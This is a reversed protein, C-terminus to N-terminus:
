GKQHHKRATYVNGQATNPGDPDYIANTSRSKTVKHGQQKWEKAKADRAAKAEADSHHTVQGWAKFDTYEYHPIEYGGQYRRDTTYNEKLIAAVSEMTPTHVVQKRGEPTDLEALTVHVMHRKSKPPKVKARIKEEAEYPTQAEVEHRGGKHDFGVYGHENVLAEKLQADRFNKTYNHHIDKYPVRSSMADYGKDSQVIAHTPTTNIIMGHETHDGVRHGQAEKISEDLKGRTGTDWKDKAKDMHKAHRKRRQAEKASTRMFDIFNSGIQKKEEKLHSKADLWHNAFAYLHDRGKDGAGHLKKKFTPNHNYLHVTRDAVHQAFKETEEPGLGRREAVTRGVVHPLISTKDEIHALSHNSAENLQESEEHLVTEYHPVDSHSDYSLHKKLARHVQQGSRSGIDHLHVKGGEHHAINNGGLWNGSLTKGDSTFKKNSASQKNLFAKFVKHSGPGINVENLQESEELKQAALQIGATRKWNKLKFRDSTGHQLSDKDEAAKSIYSKLTLRSLENLQGVEEKAFREKGFALAMNKRGIYRGTKDAKEYEKNAKKQAQNHHPGRVAQRQAEDGREIRADHVKHALGLSIEAIRVPKSPNITYKFAPKKKYWSPKATPTTKPKDYYRLRNYVHSLPEGFTPQNEMTEHIAHPSVSIRRAAAEGHQRALHPKLAFSTNYDKDTPGIVHWKNSATGYTIKHGKSLADKVAGDFSMGTAEDLVQREEKLHEWGPNKHAIYVHGSNSDGEPDHLQNRIMTKRVTHGQAKWEKAKADRAAKAEANSPHTVNGWAHYETSGGHQYESGGPAIESLMEALQKARSTAIAYMVQKAKAGYREKFGQLKSKMSHVIEEKKTDEAPTLTREHLKKLTKALRAEKGLAGGKKAAANIKEAPIKEDQPVGLKRHLAGPRKIAKAIWNRESLVNSEAFQATEHDHIQKETWGMKKLHRRSEDKDPGGMVGVMADPMRLTKKAILTQHHAFVDGRIPRGEKLM